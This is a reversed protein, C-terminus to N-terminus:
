NVRRQFTFTRQEQPIVNGNATNVYKTVDTAPTSGSQNGSPLFQITGSASDAAQPNTINSTDIIGNSDNDLAWNNPALTGDETIVVKGANLIVNGVGAQPNSINTYRIQYEIINGPAPTRPVDAVTSNPDIVVSNGPNTYAPTSEFNDQGTGVAPGSGPLIRSFKMLKLFGTYVRDITVNSSTNTGVTITARIPVPYGFETDGTYDPLTDTSLKTNAPLNVEVGYSTTAGPAVNPITIAAGSTLSFGSGQTYTYVASNGGFTITATTGTPLDSSNAPAIPILAINGTGTGTNQLTNTFGVPSPDILSGPLTNAPILASKNTFDTATTGDPGTAGPANLPGNLVSANTTTQITLSNVEGAPGTGTNDNAADVGQTNPDAVGNTITANVVSDSDPLGDNNSDTGAPPTMKGVPGDYNSPNQDGSEDYVRVGPTQSAPNTDNPTAGFVQSINNVTLSAPAPTAVKVTFTFGTVTTGVPIDQTGNAVTIQKVFGIRSVQALTDSGQLTGNTNFTLWTAANANTTLPSKTYVAQWGTPVSAGLGANLQTGAPIADSVLIYTNTTGNVSIGTTGTLPKPTIGLGTVDNSEVRLSLNYQLTDDDLTNPAGPTYTGRTKLLTALALNKQVAGVRIQQVASAERTGNVPTGNIEGSVTQPNADPNDVTYVDGGNINAGVREVNQANGPTNGLTVTIIEDPNAGAQVTVPVRVLVTGNVPVSPTTVEAGSFNIWSTGGNTSYQLEGSTTSGPLTGSVTGPGTTTALNPIRFKTPDNGLNKIEYTYIILDGVKVPDTPTTDEPVGKPTLTIGAIEAVTIVVTNSTANITTGPNNPDEYTATASNNITTGAQTGEALVPTTFPFIGSALFATTVLAHYILSKRNPSNM